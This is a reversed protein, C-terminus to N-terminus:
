LVHVTISQHLETNYIITRYLEKNIYDLVHM